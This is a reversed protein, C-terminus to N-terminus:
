SLCFHIDASMAKLFSCSFLAIVLKPLVLQLSITRVAVVFCGFDAVALMFRM